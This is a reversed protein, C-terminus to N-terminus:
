GIVDLVLLILSVLLVVYVAITYYQEDMRSMLKDGIWLALVFFPFSYICVKIVTDTFLGAPISIGLRIINSAALLLLMGARFVEKGAAAENMYIVIPPGGTGILGQLSGGVFGTVAGWIRHRLGHLSLDPFVISRILYLLIFIALAIRLITENLMSLLLIGAVTGPLMGALIPSTLRWDVHRMSRSLLIVTVM